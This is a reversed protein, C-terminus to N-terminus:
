EGRALRLAALAHQADIEAARAQDIKGAQALSYAAQDLHTAADELASLLAPAAAMLRANAETDDEYEHVTAIRTGDPNPSGIGYDGVRQNVDPRDEDAWLRWPGPTHKANM